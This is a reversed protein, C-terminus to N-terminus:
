FPTYQILRVTCTSTAPDESCSVLGEAEMFTSPNRVLGSVIPKQLLVWSGTDWQAIDNTLCAALSVRTTAQKVESDINV